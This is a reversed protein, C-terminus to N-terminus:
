TDLLSAVKLRLEPFKGAVIPRALEWCKIFMRGTDAGKWLEKFAAISTLVV